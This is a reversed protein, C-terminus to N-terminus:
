YKFVDSPKLEIVKGLKKLREKDINKTNVVVGIAIPRGKVRQNYFEMIDTFKLEKYAKVLAIRPDETYGREMWTEVVSTKNRVTPTSSITALDLYVKINELREPHQPMDNILRVFEEIADNTKDGQTGIYGRISGLAKDLSPTSYYGSATYAFSRLERLEQLVLGNFGGGFYQNFADAYPQQSKNYEDGMVFLYVEGQRADKNNMLYITNETYSRLPTTGKQKAKLNAPFALNKGLVAKVSEFSNKGTYHVSTQYQTAKIFDAALQSVRFAKVEDNTLRNIYDSENGYCLYQRLADAQTEKDRGEVQRNGITGGIIRNMQKEDLSPMLCMRSLMQCARALNEEKGRMSVYTRHDSASFSVTCGLKSFERKLEYPTYQAMIGAQNMLNVAHELGRIDATGAGYEITLSFISNQQNNNYFFQVGQALESRKIDKEFDIPKFEPVQVPENIWAKAFESQGQAPVVPKYKPKAIKDKKATGQLSQMSLYPAGFYKKALAIVDDKTVSAIKEPYKAMESVSVGNAFARSLNMGNSMHSEKGLEHTMILNDKVANILWDDVQGNMLDNLTKIINNELSKLSGFRMQAMDFVPIGQIMIIGVQRFSVPSLAVMQAEGDLSLKDLLGTRTRNSLVGSLVDMKHADADGVAIGQYGLMLMPYPTLKTKIVRNKELKPQKAETRQPLPRSQWKGLTAEALEKVEQLNVDGALVLAMNEPVYFTNYYNILKSISPTKLHESYGIIPRAYPSGEGFMESLFLESLVSYPDDSYMNKEEYVTELESQFGRYVPNEFRDAQLALWKKLQYSPFLNFYQTIDYGTSANLSTGGIAQILNSYENNLTYAGAKLSEENIQLQIAEREAEPVTALQDYLAIIREYHPKEAEWNTTGVKQSGKFMVHELYHATGTADVPEDVSGARVVINGFVQPTSHDESIIVTLGNSLRFESIQGMLLSSSLLFLVFLCVKRTM